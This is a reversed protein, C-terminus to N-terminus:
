SDATVQVDASTAVKSHVLYEYNNAEIDNLNYKYNVMLGYSLDMGMKNPNGLWNLRWLIAGNRLHFHAVPDFALGRRKERSLYRACLKKMPHELKSCLDDNLHWDETSLMNKIDCCTQMDFGIFTQPIPEGSVVINLHHDLWKRFNPVPSLTVFTDLTPFERRLEHVVKKILLNGLGIGDLGRHIASISYFTATKVLDKEMPNNDTQLVSNINSPINDGLLAHLVVLPEDPIMRHTFAFVRRRNGMRQKMESWSNIPHVAESKMLKEIFGASTSNWTIPQLDMFGDAFWEALHKKLFNDFVRLNPSNRDLLNSKFLHRLDKRMNVLFGVGESLRSIDDFLHKYTPILSLLLEEQNRNVLTSKETISKHLKVLSTEVQETDIGLNTSLAQFIEVKSNANPLANYFSVLDKAFYYPILDGSEHSRKSSLATSFKIKLEHSSEKNLLLSVWNSNRKLNNKVLQFPKLYNHVYLLGRLM